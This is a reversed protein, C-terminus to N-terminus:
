ICKVRMEKQGDIRAAVELPPLAKKILSETPRESVPVVFHKEDHRAANGDEAPGPVRLNAPDAEPIVIQNNCAPCNITSGALSTPAELQQKCNPCTFTIDM